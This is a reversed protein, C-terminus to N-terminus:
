AMAAAIAYAEILGGIALLGLAYLVMVVVDKVILNMEGKVHRKKSIAVGIIGGAIAGCFYGLAEFMGHPVLGLARNAAIGLAAVGGHSAAYQVLDKGILVGLVSANWGLLFVAGAGYALSFFLMPLLVFLNNMFIIEFWCFPNAGCTKGSVLFAGIPNEGSSISFAGSLNERLGSIQGLTFEQEEFMVGRVDPAVVSYWFAYALIMGIFFFAYVKVINFHRAIFLAAFGPREAEKEEESKFMSHFLPVLAITVFAIALISSSKPFTLYSAWLSVSCIFVSAILMFFPHKLAERRDLISELVM